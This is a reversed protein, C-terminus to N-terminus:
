CSQFSFIARDDSVQGTKSTIVGDDILRKLASTVHPSKVIGFREKLMMAHIDRRSLSRGCCAKAIDKELSDVKAKFIQEETPDFLAFMDLQASAKYRELERQYNEEIGCVVNSALVLGKKSATAFVLYYKTEEQLSGVRYSESYGEGKIAQFASRLHEMYLEVACRKRDEPTEGPSLKRHLQDKDKIGYVRTLIEFNKEAGPQTSGYYGDRRRVEAVDFRLWLDTQTSRHILKQVAVWDMGDVGFPDLFCIAPKAGIVRLVQDVRDAFTGHINQVLSSYSNTATQLEDFTAKDVEINICRLSHNRGKTSYERALEAARLPSGPVQPEGPRGYSGRGAFGDVYFVQNISGLIRTAGDLYNRVLRLKRESWEKFEDFYDLNSTM